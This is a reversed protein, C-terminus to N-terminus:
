TSKLITGTATYSFETTVFSELGVFYHQDKEVASLTFNLFSTSPICHSEAGCIDGAQNFNNYNTHNSCNYVKAVCTSSYQLDHAFFLWNIISDKVLYLDGLSYSQSTANLTRTYNLFKRETVIDSCPVNYFDVTLGSSDQNLNFEVRLVDSPDPTSMIKVIDSAGLLIDRSSGSLAWSIFISAISFFTIIAVGLSLICSFACIWACNNCSGKKPRNNNEGNPLVTNQDSSPPNQETNHLDDTIQDTAITYDTTQRTSLPHDEDRVSILANHGHDEVEM